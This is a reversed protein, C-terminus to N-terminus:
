KVIEYSGRGGKTRTKKTIVNDYTVGNRTITRLYYGSRNLVYNADSFGDHLLNRERELTYGGLAKNYKAKYLDAEQPPSNQFVRTNYDFKLKYDKTDYYKHYDVGSHSSVINYNIVSVVDKISSIGIYGKSTGTIDKMIKNFEDVSYVKGVEIDSLKFKGSKASKAKVAIANPRNGKAM